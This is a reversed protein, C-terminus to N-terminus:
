RVVGEPYEEVVPTVRVEVRVRDGPDQDVIKEFERGQYLYRVRYGTVDEVERSEVITACHRPSYRDFERRRGAQNAVSAGLVAGAIALAKRGSGGGFQSGVLGGLVGGLITAVPSRSRPPRPPDYDHTDGHYQSHDEYYRSHRRSYRHDDRRDRPTRYEAVSCDQVPRSIERREILPEVDIVDAYVVYSDSDANAAMVSLAIGAGSLLAAWRM